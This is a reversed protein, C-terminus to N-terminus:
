RLQQLQRSSKWLRWVIRTWNTTSKTPRTHCRMRSTRVVLVPGVSTQCLLNINVRYVKWNNQTPGHNFTSHSNAPKNRCLNFSTQFNNSYLWTTLMTRIESIYSNWISEWNQNNWWNTSERTQRSIKRRMFRLLDLLLRLLSLVYIIINRDPPQLMPIDYREGGITYSSLSKTMRSFFEPLNLWNSKPWFVTTKM